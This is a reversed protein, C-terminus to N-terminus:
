VGLDHEWLRIVTWGHRRLRARTRADRARNAAIKATWFATRTKPPRFHRPCGHWFCGDVFILAAASAVLVDPNGDMDPNMVHPVGSAALLAHVATEPGTRTSRISRMIESRRKKTVNDM